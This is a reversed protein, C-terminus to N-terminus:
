PNFVKDNVAGGFRFNTFRYETYGRKSNLTISELANTKKNLELVFSTFMLHKAADPTMTVVVSGGEQAIKVGKVASINTKGGSLVSQLVAKFAAFQSATKASAVRKHGGQVMTFTNGNMVLQEKGGDVVIAVKDPDKMSLSGTYTKNKTMAKNHKVMVAAATASKAARYKVVAQEFAAQQAHMAPVFALAMLMLLLIHKM